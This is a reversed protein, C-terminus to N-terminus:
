KYSYGGTVEIISGNVYSNDLCFAFASVIEDISAFRHLATKSCINDRIQQPKEKQWETEVFGPAIANVTVNKDEFVKVLNKVMAHVAAKVVGYGLVTAHPYLGMASGTFLVRGDPLIVNYLERLLILHATLGVEMMTDWDSDTTETFSKRITTGANCVICDIGAAAQRVHNVFAHTQTRDALDAKVFEAKDGLEAAAAQAASDDHGYTAFVKYGRGALMRVIGLGIGKSGGTVIATKM